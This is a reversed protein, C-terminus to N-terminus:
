FIIGHLETDIYLLVTPDCGLVRFVERANGCSGWTECSFRMKYDSTWIASNM